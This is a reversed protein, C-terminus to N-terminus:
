INWQENTETPTLKTEVCWRWMWGDSEWWITSKQQVVKRRKIDERFVFIFSAHLCTLDLLLIFFFVDFKVSVVHFHHFCFLIAFVNRVFNFFFFLNATCLWWSIAKILGFFIKHFSNWRHNQKKESRIKLLKVIFHASIDTYMNLSCQESAANHILQSNFRVLLMLLYLDLIFITRKYETITLKFIPWDKYDCHAWRYERIVVCVCVCILFSKSLSFFVALYKMFHPERIPKFTRNQCLKGLDTHM